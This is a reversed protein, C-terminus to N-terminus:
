RRGGGDGGGSRSSAVDVKIKRSENYDMQGGDARAAEVFSKLSDLDEFHAYGFGASGGRKTPIEVKSPKVDKSALFALLDEETIPTPSLSTPGLNGVFAM